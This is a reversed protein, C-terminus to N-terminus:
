RSPDYLAFLRGKDHWVSVQRDRVDVLANKFQRFSEVDPLVYLCCEKQSAQNLLMVHVAKLGKLGCNRGGLVKYNGLVEMNTPIISFDSHSLGAAISKLDSSYVDPTFHRDYVNIVQNAVEIQDGYNVWDVVNSVVVSVIMFAICAAAAYSFWAQRYFPFVIEKKPTHKLIHEIKSDSLQISEYFENVLKDLQEENM